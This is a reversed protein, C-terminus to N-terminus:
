PSIFIPRGLFSDYIATDPLQVVSEPSQFEGRAIMVAISGPSKDGSIAVVIDDVKKWYKDIWSPDNKKVSEYIAAELAHAIAGHDVDQGNPIFPVAQQLFELAFARNDDDPKSPRSKGTVWDPIVQQQRQKLQTCSLKESKVLGKSAESAPRMLNGLSFKKREVKIEKQPVHEPESKPEVKVAVKELSGVRKIPASLVVKQAEESVSNSSDNSKVPQPPGSPTPTEVFSQAEVRVFKRNPKFDPPIDKKKEDYQVKLASRVKKMEDKLDDSLIKKSAKLLDNIDTMLSFHIKEARSSIDDIASAVGGEDQADIAQQWRVFIPNFEKESIAFLTQARKLRQEESRVEKDKTISKEIKHKIKKEKKKPREKEDKSLAKKGNLPLSSEGVPAGSINFDEDEDNDGDSGSDAMAFKYDEDLEERKPMNSFETMGIKDANQPITTLPIDVTEQKVKTAVGQQLPVPETQLTAPPAFFASMASESSKMKKKKKKKPPVPPVEQKLSEEDVQKRKKGSSKKMDKEDNSINKPKKKKVIPQKEPSPDDEEDSTILYAETFNGSMWGFRDHPEKVLDENMEMMGEVLLRSAATLKGEKYKKVTAEPIQDLNKKM